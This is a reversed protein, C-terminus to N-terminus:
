SEVEKLKKLEDVAWQIQPPFGEGLALMCAMAQGVAQEAESKMWEKVTASAGCEGVIELVEKLAAWVTATPLPMIYTNECEEDELLATMVKCAAINDDVVKRAKADIWPPAEEKLHDMMGLITGHADQLTGIAKRQENNLM